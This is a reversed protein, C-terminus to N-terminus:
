EDRYYDYWSPYEHEYAAQLRRMFKWCVVHMQFHDFTLEPIEKGIAMHLNSLVSLSDLKWGSKPISFGYKSGEESLINVVDEPALDTRRSSACFRHQFTWPVPALMKLKRM